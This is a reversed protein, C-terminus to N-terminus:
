KVMKLPKVVMNCAPIPPRYLRKSHKKEEEKRLSRIDLRDFSM